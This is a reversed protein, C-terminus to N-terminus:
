HHGPQGGLDPDAPGHVIAYTIEGQRESPVTLTKVWRPTHSPVHKEFFFKGEVGDPFRKM